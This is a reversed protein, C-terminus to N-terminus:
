EIIWLQVQLFTYEIIWLQVQLCTYEIICLHVQLFTYEIIAYSSKDTITSLCHLKDMSIAYVDM